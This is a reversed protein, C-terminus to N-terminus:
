RSPRGDRAPHPVDCLLVVNRKVKDRAQARAIARKLVSRIECLTRTSLTRAKDALWRDVDDASLNRLKRVGLAPIVHTNALITCKEITAPDRGVLGFALWDTVAQGVTYGYGGTSLGDDHDRILEKLKRRAETKTRGRARKSSASARLPTASPSPRSGANDPTTGPCAV